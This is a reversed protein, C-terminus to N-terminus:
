QKIVCVMKAHGLNGPTAPTLTLECNGSSIHTGTPVPTGSVLDATYITVNNNVTFSGSYSGGFANLSWPGTSSAALAGTAPVAIGVVIVLLALTRRLM